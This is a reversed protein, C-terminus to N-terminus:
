FGKKINVFYQLVWNLIILCIGIGVAVKLKGVTNRLKEGSKKLTKKRQFDIGKKM